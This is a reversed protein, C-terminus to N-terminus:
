IEKLETAKRLFGDIVFEMYAACLYDTLDHRRILLINRDLKKLSEQDYERLTKKLNPVTVFVIFFIQKLARWLKM